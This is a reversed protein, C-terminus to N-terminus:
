VRSLFQGQTVDQRHPLPQYICVNVKPSTGKPFTHVRKDGLWYHCYDRPQVELEPKNLINDLIYIYFNYM